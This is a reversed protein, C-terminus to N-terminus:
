LIDLHKWYKILITNLALPEMKDQLMRAVVRWLSQMSTTTAMTLSGNDCSWLQLFAISRGSHAITTKPAAHFITLCGDRRHMTYSIFNRNYIYIHNSNLQNSQIITSQNISQNISQYISQYIALNISQYISLYISIIYTYQIYIYIHICLIIYINHRYIYSTEYLKCGISASGTITTNRISPELQVWSEISDADIYM